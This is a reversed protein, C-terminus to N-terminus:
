FLQPCRRSWMIVRVLKRWSPYLNSKVTLDSIRFYCVLDADMQLNHSSLFIVIVCLCLLFRFLRRFIFHEQISTVLELSDQKGLFSLRFHCFFVAFLIVPTMSTRSDPNLFGDFTQQPIWFEPRQFGYYLELFGTDWWRNSDSIWIGCVFFGCDLVQIVPEIAHFGSELLTKSGRVHPSQLHDCCYTAKVNPRRIVKWKVYHKM